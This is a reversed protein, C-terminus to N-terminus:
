KHQSRAYEEDVQRSIDFYVEVRKGRVVFLYYDFFKDREEHAIMRHEENLSSVGGSFSYHDPFHKKLYALEWDHLQADPVPVVVAAKESSGDRM